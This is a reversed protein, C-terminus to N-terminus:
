FGHAVHRAPDGPAALRRSKQLAEGAAEEGARQLHASYIRARLLAKDSASGTMVVKITGQEPDARHWDPRRTHHMGTISFQNVALWENRQPAAWDMLRVFDGRTQGDKQYQVPVGGVLLRHFQRNAALLAPAGLEAVQKLADDRAAKPVGPNLTAIAQRQRNLLRVQRCDRREPAAGDPALDPRKAARTAWM